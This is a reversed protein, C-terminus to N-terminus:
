VKIEVGDRIEIDRIMRWVAMGSGSAWIFALLFFLAMLFILVVGLTPIMSGLFKLAQFGVFVGIIIFIITLNNPEKDPDGPNPKSVNWIGTEPNYKDTEALRYEFKRLMNISQRYGLWASLGSALLLGGWVLIPPYLLGFHFFLFLPMVALFLAASMYAQLYMMRATKRMVIYTVVPLIGQMILLANRLGAGTNEPVDLLWITAYSTLLTLLMGTISFHILRFLVSKNQQM